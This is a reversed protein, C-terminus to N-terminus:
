CRPSIARSCFMSTPGSVSIGAMAFTAGRRTTGTRCTSTGARTRRSSGTTMTQSTTTVRFQCGTGSSSRRRGTRYTWGCLSHFTPVWWTGPTLGRFLVSPVVPFTATNRPPQQLLVPNTQWSFQNSPDIEVVEGNGDSVRIVPARLAPAIYRPGRFNSFRSLDLAAANALPNTDFDLFNVDRTLAMWYNEAIESAIEASSFAPPPPMDCNGPDQGALQYALGAQPNKLLATGGMPIRDFEAPDGSRISKLLQDYAGPDVEGLSNHPLGKTFSGIRTSYRTEDGNTIQEVIAKSRQQLAAQVRTQYALEARELGSIGKMDLDSPVNAAEAGGTLALSTSMGGAMTTLSVGGMGALFRRRGARRPSKGAGKTQLEASVESRGASGAAVEKSPTIQTHEQNQRKM